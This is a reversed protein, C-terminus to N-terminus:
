KGFGGLKSTWGNKKTKTPKKEFNDIMEYTITFGKGVMTDDKSYPYQDKIFEQPLDKIKKIKLERLRLTKGNELKIKADDSLGQVSFNEFFRIFGDKKLEIVTDYTVKGGYILIERAKIRVDDELNM